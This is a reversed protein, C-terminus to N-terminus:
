KTYTPKKLHMEFEGAVVGCKMVFQFSKISYDPKVPTSNDIM